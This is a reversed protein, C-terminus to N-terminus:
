RHHIYGFSTRALFRLISIQPMRCEAFEGVFDAGVALVFWSDIRHNFSAARYRFRRLQLSGARSNRYGCLNVNEELFRATEGLLIQISSGHRRRSNTRSLNRPNLSNAYSTRCCIKYRICRIDTRCRIIYGKETVHPTRPCQANPMPCQANPMPCQANPM